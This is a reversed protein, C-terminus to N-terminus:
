RSERGPTLPQKIRQGAAGPRVCRHLPGSLRSGCRGTESVPGPKSAHAPEACRRSTARNQPMNTSVKMAATADEIAAHGIM